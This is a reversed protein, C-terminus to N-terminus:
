KVLLSENFIAENNKLQVKYIGSSINQPLYVPQAASGGAYNIITAYVQKGTVDFVLFQYTGKDVNNLQLTVTRDVVPNPYFNISAVSSNLSVDVVSSYRVSGDKDVIRLRYYNTGALPNNDPYVYNSAGDASLGGITTTFNKDDSSREVIYESVNIESYVQWSIDVNNGAKYATVTGLKSALVTSPPTLSWTSFANIGTKEVYNNVNDRTTFGIDTFTINDPSEVMDLINENDGNLEADLYKFRLTANLAADNTPTIIYNRLINSNSLETYTNFTRKITTSGLNAASTIIAGLNGLNASSPANLVGTSQIYGITGSSFARSTETENNLVATTGLNVNNDGVNLSGSTFNVQTVVAINSQLNLNATSGKAILLNDITTTGSGSITEDVSGAFKINGDSAAQQLTGNNVLNVNNFVLYAGGTPKVTAGAAINLTGQAFLQATCNIAILVVIIKKM